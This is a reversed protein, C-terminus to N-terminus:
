RFISKKFEQPTCGEVDKFMKILYPVSRLGMLETIKELTFNTDALYKKIHRVMAKRRDQIPSIGFMKKYLVSFHAETYFLKEAMVRVPYKPPDDYMDRRVENMLRYRKSESRKQLEKDYYAKEFDNFIDRIFWDNYERNEVEIETNNLFSLRDILAYIHNGIEEGVYFITNFPFTWMGQQLFDGEIDFIVFSNSLKEVVSKYRQKGEPSFVVASYPNVHFFHEMDYSFEVGSQFYLIIYHGMGNPYYVELGIQEIKLPVVSLNTIKHEM